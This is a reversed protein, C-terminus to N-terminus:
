RGGGVLEARADIAQRIKQAVLERGALAERRRRCIALLSELEHPSFRGEGSALRVVYRLDALRRLDEARDCLTAMALLENPGASHVSERGTAGRAPAPQPALALASAPEQGPQRTKRETTM